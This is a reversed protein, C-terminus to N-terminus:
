GAPLHPTPGCGPLQNYCRRQTCVTALRALYGAGANRPKGGLHAACSPGCGGCLFRANYLLPLILGLEPLEWVVNQQLWARLPLVVRSVLLLITLIVYPAVAKWLPPALENKVIAFSPPAQASPSTALRGWGVLLGMTVLSALVGALEVGPMWSFGYHDLAFLAGAVFATGGWRRNFFHANTHM